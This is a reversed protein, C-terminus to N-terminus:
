FTTETRSYFEGSYYFKRKLLGDEYIHKLVFFKPFNETVTLAMSEHFLICSWVPSIASFFRLGLLVLHDSVLLNM